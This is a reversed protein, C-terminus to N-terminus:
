TRPRKGAAILGAVEALVLPAEAVSDVVFDAGAAELVGRALDRRRRREPGPLADLDALSLGLANGSMSVGVTWCGANRGEEVDVPTDGVKVCWWLPWIGLLRANEFVMFPAPRGTPVDDPTVVADPLYGQRAAAESVVRMMQRTYGTTTGVRVGQERLLHFFTLAGPVLVAHRAIEELMALELEPYLADTDSERGLGSLLNRLHDRKPLGMGGRIMEDTAVVGHRSLVSRIAAVPALCGHDIMTGAWDLIVAPIHQSLRNM